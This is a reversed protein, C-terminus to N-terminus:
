DETDPDEEAGFRVKLVVMAVMLSGLLLPNKLVARTTDEIMKAIREVM